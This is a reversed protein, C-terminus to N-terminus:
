KAQIAKDIADPDIQDILHKLNWSKVPRHIKVSGDEKSTAGFALVFVEVKDEGNAEKGVVKSKIAVFVENMGDTLYPKAQEECHGVLHSLLGPLFKSAANKLGAAGGMMKLATKGNFLSGIM